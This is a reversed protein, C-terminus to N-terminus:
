KRMVRAIVDRGVGAAEQEDRWWAATCGDMFADHFPKGHNSRFLIRLFEPNPKRRQEADKAVFAYCSTRPWGTALHLQQGTDIRGFVAWACLVFWDDSGCEPNPGAEPVIAIGNASGGNIAVGVGISEVRGM